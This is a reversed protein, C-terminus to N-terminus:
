RIAFITIKKHNKPIVSFPQKNLDVELIQLYIWINLTKDVYRGLKLM